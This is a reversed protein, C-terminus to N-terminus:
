NDGDAVLRGRIRRVKDSKWLALTKELREDSGPKDGRAGRALPTGAQSDKNMARALANPPIEVRLFHELARRAADPEGMLDEYRLLLCERHRLLFDRCALATLYKKVTKQPSNRFTKMTSRAWSEFDRTIFLVRREGPDSLLAPARCSEARLKVIVPGAASLSACLDRGMGLVANRMRGRLPNLPSSLFQSTAQTYFDAESVNAIGAEFLIRSVLTSGCRGPSFLLIPARSESQFVPGAEWPVMVVTRASRRLHLYYFPAAQAEASSVGGVYIARRHIVDLCYPLLRRAITEAHTIPQAEGLSFDSLSAISIRETRRAGRVSASLITREQSM